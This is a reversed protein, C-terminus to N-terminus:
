GTVGTSCVQCINPTQTPCVKMFAFEKTAALRSLYLWSTHRRHQHYDRKEKLRRFSTRGLRYVIGRTIDNYYEILIVQTTKICISLRICRCCHVFRNKLTIHLLNQQSVDCVQNRGLVLKIVLQVCLM